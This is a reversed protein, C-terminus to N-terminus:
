FFSDVSRGRGRGGDRHHKRKCPFRPSSGGSNVSPVGSLDDRIGEAFTSQQHNGSYDDGASVVIAVEQLREVADLTVERSTLSAIKVYFNRQAHQISYFAALPDESYPALRVGPAIGIKEAEAYENGGLILAVATGHTAEKRLLPTFIGSRIGRFGKLMLTSAQTSSNKVRFCLPRLYIGNELVAVTVGTGQYGEELLARVHIREFLRPAENYSRSADAQRGVTSLLLFFVTGWFFSNITLKM